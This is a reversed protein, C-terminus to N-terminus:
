QIGGQRLEDITEFWIELSIAEKEELQFYVRKILEKLYQNGDRQLEKVQQSFDVFMKNEQTIESPELATYWELMSAQPTELYEILMEFLYAHLGDRQHYRDNWYFARFIGETRTLQSITSPNLHQSSVLLQDETLFLTDKTFYTYTPRVYIKDPMERQPIDLLTAIFESKEEIISIVQQLKDLRDPPALYERGDVETQILMGYLLTVGTSFGQFENKGVRNLNSFAQDKQDVFIHFEAPEQLQINKFEPEYFYGVREAVLWKGPIPYWPFASSLYFSTETIPSFAGTNGRVDLILEGSIKGEPWEILLWDQEREFVLPKEDLKVSIVNLGNYLTFPIWKQNLNNEINVTAEYQLNIGEFSLLIDYSLARLENSIKIDQSVPKVLHEQSYYSADRYNYFSNYDWFTNEDLPGISPKITFIFLLISIGISTLLLGKERKAIEDHRRILLALCFLLISAWLFLLLNMVISLSINLGHYHHYASSIEREGVNMISLIRYFIPYPALKLFLINFPSIFLWIFILIGIKWKSPFLLELFYGLIGTSFLIGGWYILIYTFIERKFFLFESGVIKFLILIEVFALITLFASTIMWALLKGLPRIHDGPLAELVEEFHAQQERKAMMVGFFLGFLAAAMNIYSSSQLMQGAEIYEQNLFHFYGIGVYITLTVLMFYTLKSRRYNLVEMSIISRLIEM